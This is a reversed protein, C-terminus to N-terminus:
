CSCSADFMDDIDIDWDDEDGTLFCPLCQIFM